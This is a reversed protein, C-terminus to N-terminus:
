YCKGRKEKLETTGLATVPRKSASNLTEKIHIIWSTCMIDNQLVRGTCDYIIGYNMVCVTYCMFLRENQKLCSFILHLQFFTVINEFEEVEIDPFKNVAEISTLTMFPFWISIFAEDCKTDLLGMYAMSRPCHFPNHSINSRVSLYM